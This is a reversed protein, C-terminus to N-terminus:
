PQALSPVSTTFIEAQQQEAVAAKRKVATVYVKCPIITIVLESCQFTYRCMGAQGPHSNRPLPKDALEKCIGLSLLQNHALWM